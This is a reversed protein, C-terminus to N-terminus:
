TRGSLAETFERYFKQFSPSREAVQSLDVRGTFRAQHLTKKYSETMQEELKGAPSRPSEPDGEFHADSKLAPTGRLSDIGALLWAEYERVAVFVLAECVAAALQEKTTEVIEDPDDDDSDYLVVVIGDEGVVARQTRVADAVKERTMSTRAIRHPTRIDRDYFFAEDAIRRLLIPLAQVEGYGEVVSAIHITM